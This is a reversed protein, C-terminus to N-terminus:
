NNTVTWGKGVLNAKAALGVASPTSSTGGTINVTGNNQGAADLSVLINDVSTQTLACGDFALSFNTCLTSDFIGSPVTTLSSCFQCMSSCDTASNFDLGAISTIGTNSRVIGSLNLCANTNWGSFNLVLGGTIYFLQSLTTASSVDWGSFDAIGVMANAQRFARYFDTITSVNWQDVYTGKLASCAWFMERMTLSGSLPFDASVDVLNSCGYFMSQNITSVGAIFKFVSGCSVVELLKLKDNTNNFKWGRFLGTVTITYAGAVAYTHTWAADNWTTITDSNGDGWYVTCNYTGTIDTPFKFQDANSSGVSVNSTEIDIVFAVGSYRYPNLIRMTDPTELIQENM